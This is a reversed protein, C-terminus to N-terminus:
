TRTKTIFGNLISEFESCKIDHEVKHEKIGQYRAQTRNSIIMHFKSSLTINNNRIMRVASKVIEEENPLGEIHCMDKLFRISSTLATIQEIINKEIVNNKNNLQCGFIIPAIFLIVKAKKM